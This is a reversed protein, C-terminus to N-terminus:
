RPDGAVTHETNKDWDAKSHAREAHEADEWLPMRDWLLNPSCIVKRAHSLTICHRGGDGRQPPGRALRSLVFNYKVLSHSRSRVSAAM